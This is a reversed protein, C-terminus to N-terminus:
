PPEMVHYINNKRAECHHVRRVTNTRTFTMILKGLMGKIENLIVNGMSKTKIM